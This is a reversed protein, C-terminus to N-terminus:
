GNKVVRKKSNEEECMRVVEAVALITLDNNQAIRKDAMSGLSERKEILYGLVAEHPGDLWPEFCECRYCAIPAGFGCFSHTGCSGMPAGSQDIRLDVIRSSPDTSRTAEAESRILKGKFAQALPALKMAVAKDIREMIAPTAEVYVGANQTDTHDLLEAIVLIGHGEEAARTGVTRRFRIPMMNLKEGTRESRVGLTALVKRVAVGFELGSFHLEYGSTDQLKSEKPRVFLPAQDPEDFQSALLQKVDQVHLELLRGIAPIIARKKFFSRAGDVGQQKARPISLLYTKEGGNSTNVILDGVKLAAYQIPRMGLAITLWAGLYEQVSIKKDGFSKALADLLAETEMSTLPGAFPDMTRVAVGKDNGKKRVSDLFRVADDTVGTYGLANWKKLLGSIASLYGKKQTEPIASYSVLHAGDIETMSPDGVAEILHRLRNMMNMAHKPSYNQLYWSAVQKATQLLMPAASELYEFNLYVKTVQDRFAWANSAADYGVGSKTRCILRKPVHPCTASQHLQGQAKSEIQM